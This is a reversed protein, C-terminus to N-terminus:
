KGTFRPKRKEFFAAAAEKQDETQGCLQETALGLPLTLSLSQQLTQNILMKTWRVAPAAKESLLRAYGNAEQMLQAAPVVHNVLGIREAEEATALKGSMLFEKARHPGVLLPWIVAGGDGAVLGVNVHTDGIRATDAMYIVDCLLALTAGLGAAVGNVAAIVPAECGIIADALSRTRITSMPSPEDPYFGSVDGGASFASGAGTLVISSVDPDRSLGRFAEELATHVAHNIANRKDPRNLTVLAIRDDIAVTVHREALSTYDAM